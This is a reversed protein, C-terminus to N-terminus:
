TGSCPMAGCCNSPKKPMQSPYKQTATHCATNSCWPLSEHGEHDMALHSYGGGPCIVISRGTSKKEMPLYIWVKATDNPVGNRNPAGTPWLNMVKVSQASMSAAMIVCTMLMLYRKKM